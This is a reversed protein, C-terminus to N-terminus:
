NPRHVNGVSPGAGLVVADLGAASLLGAETCTAKTGIRRGLGLAQQAAEVAAVLPADLPTELPPNARVLEIEAVEGLASVVQEADVGPIPRLDFTFM